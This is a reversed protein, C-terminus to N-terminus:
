DKNKIKSLCRRMALFLAIAAGAEALPILLIVMGAPERFIRSGESFGCMFCLVAFMLLAISVIQLTRCCVIKLLKM